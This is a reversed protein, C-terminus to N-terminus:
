HLKSEPIWRKISPNENKWNVLVWKKGKVSKRKLINVDLYKQSKPSALQLQKEYFLGKLEEDNSNKLKFQKYPFYTKVKEIVFIETSWFGKYGKSFPKNGTSIRVKDGVKLEFNNKTHLPVVDHDWLHSYLNKLVVSVNEENVEIPAMKISSHFTKNYTEFIQQIVDIYRNTQNFTLYRYILKKIEKICREALAAKKDSETSYLLISYKKMVNKFYKNYFETGKDTQLKEPKRGSEKLIEEFSKATEEGKKSKMPKGWAYRSVVDICLLICNKKNNYNSLEPLFLIDAQWNRDIDSSIIPNRPFNFQRAKHITYTYNDNLWNKIEVRTVKYKKHKLVRYLKDVSSFAANEGPTTYIKELELEWKSM